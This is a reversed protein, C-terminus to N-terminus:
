RVTNQLALRIIEESPLDTADVRSVLKSAEAPRYGLAVLAAIADSSADGAPATRAKGGVGPLAGGGGLNNLGDKLEIVLRQATKKGVGPLRTLSDADQQQICHILEDVSMGSLLTLALKPGVGNVRILSRFLSRELRTLFGYLNHADDKISLHTYLTVPEGVAPLAYFTSMPAEIEYGVGAVDLLLAPPQKEALHGQLRGIM